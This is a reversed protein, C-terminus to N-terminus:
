FLALQLPKNLTRRLIPLRMKIHPTLEENERIVVVNIGSKQCYQMVISFLNPTFRHKKERISFYSVKYLKQVWLQFKKAISMAECGFGYFCCGVQMLIPSKPYANTFFVIQLYLSDFRSIIRVPRLYNKSFYLVPKLRQLKKEIAQVLHYSNAHRFHSLYSNTSALLKEYRITQCNFHEVQFNGDQKEQPPLLRAFRQDFNKKVRRRILTYRPKIFYGLFDIGRYVSLPCVATDKLTLRLHERLFVIIKERVALLVTPDSHFLVFDDVYRVYYRMSLGRKVFQDLENLYINAFFQSTLNGIPIGREKDDHFLTKHPPLVGPTPVRGRFVYADVPSHNVVVKLLDFLTGSAVDKALIAVLTPKHIEMFYGKIDLQLYYGAGKGRRCELYAKHLAEVSFDPQVAIM